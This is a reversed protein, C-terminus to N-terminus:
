GAGRLQEGVRVLLAGLQRRENEDLGALAQTALQQGAQHLEAHVAAGAETLFLRTSRRDAQDARADVLGKERLGQVLRTVQAKDRGSRQVLDRQTAGPHRAIYGLAKNEMHTLEHTTARLSRYHQARFLHMIEHIAEFVDPERASFQNVDDVEKEM